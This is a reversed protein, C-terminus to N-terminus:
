SIQNVLTRSTYHSCSANFPNGFWFIATPMAKQEVFNHNGLFWVSVCPLLYSFSPIKYILYPFQSLKMCKLVVTEWSLRLTKCSQYIRFTLVPRHGPEIVTPQNNHCTGLKNSTYDDTVQLHLIQYHKYCMWSFVVEMLFGAVWLYKNTHPSTV